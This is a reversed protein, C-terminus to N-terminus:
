IENVEAGEQKAKTYHYQCLRMEKGSDGANWDYTMVMFKGIAPNRCLDCKVNGKSANIAGLSANVMFGSRSVGKEKCYLDIKKIKMAPVSINVRM